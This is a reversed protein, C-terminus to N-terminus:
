ALKLLSTEDMGTVGDVSMGGCLTKFYCVTYIKILLCHLALNATSSSLQRILHGGLLLVLSWCWM